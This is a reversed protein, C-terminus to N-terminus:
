RKQSLLRIALLAVWSWGIVINIRQLLGTPSGPLIGNQDLTSVVKGSQLVERLGIAFCLSLIGCILFNTIQVWGQNSQSLQSVQNHWASYGPRTAGEILFVLIFLLPGIADCAILFRTTLSYSRTQNNEAGALVIAIAVHYPVFLFLFVPLRSFTLCIAAWIM